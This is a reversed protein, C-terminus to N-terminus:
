GNSKKMNLDENYTNLEHKLWVVGDKARTGWFNAGTLTNGYIKAKVSSRMIGFRSIVTEGADVGIPNEM